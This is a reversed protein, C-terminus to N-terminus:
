FGGLKAVSPRYGSNIPHLNGVGCHMFFERDCYIGGWRAEVEWNEERQQVAARSQEWDTSLGHQNRAASAGRDCSM